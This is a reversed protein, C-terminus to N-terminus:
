EFRVYVYRNRSIREESENVLRRVSVVLSQILIFYLVNYLPQSNARKKKKKTNLRVSLSSLNRLDNSQTFSFFYFVTNIVVTASKLSEWGPFIKSSRVKNFALM